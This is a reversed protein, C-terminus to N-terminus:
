GGSFPPLLSVTAGDHFPTNETVIKKDVAIRYTATILAPFDAHIKQQLTQTDHVGELELGPKGTIDALQGYFNVQITM